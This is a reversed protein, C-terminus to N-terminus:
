VMLQQHIFFKLEKKLKEKTTYGIYVELCPEETIFVQQTYPYEIKGTNLNKMAWTYGGKNECPVAEGVHLMDRYEYAYFKGIEIVPNNELERLVKM